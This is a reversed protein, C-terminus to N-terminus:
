YFPIFINNLDASEQYLKYKKDVGLMFYMYSQPYRCSKNAANFPKYSLKYAIGDSWGGKEHFTEMSKIYNEWTINQGYKSITRKLGEAFVEMAAWGAISYNSPAQTSGSYKVWAKQFNQYSKSHAPTFWNGAYVDNWMNGGLKFMIPDGNVYTTVFPIKKLDMGAERASKVIGLAKGGYVFVIVADPNAQKLRSIVPNFDTDTLSVPIKEIISVGKRKYVPIIEDIGALVGSGAEDNQYVVAIRKKKLHDLIFKVMVRGEGIFSPQVPFVNRKPPDFLVTAGSGQYVFPIGKKVIFDMSAVIGPTGVAGVVAFVNKNDVLEKAAQVSKEATFQDDIFTANIKKGGTKVEENYWKIYTEMGKRFNDGIFGVTGSLPLFSGIEITDKTVGQEAWVMKSCFLLFLTFSLFKKM